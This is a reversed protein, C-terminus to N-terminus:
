LKGARSPTKIRYYGLCNSPMNKTQAIFDLSGQADEFWLENNDYAPLGNLRSDLGLAKCLKGPGKVLQKKDGWEFEAARLTICSYEGERGTSIDLLRNGYKTSISIVGPASNINGSTRKGAIGQYAAVESIIGKLARENLIRVIYKGLLEKAVIDPSRAFFGANLKKISMKNVEEKHIIM